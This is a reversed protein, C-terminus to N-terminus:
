LPLVGIALYKLLYRDHMLLSVPSGVPLPLLMRNDVGTLTFPSWGCSIVHIDSLEQFSLHCPPITKRTFFFPCFKAYLATPQHCATGDMYFCPCHSLCAPINCFHVIIWAGKVSVTLFIAVSPICYWGGSIACQVTKLSIHSIQSIMFLSVYKWQTYRGRSCFSIASLSDLFPLISPGVQLLM